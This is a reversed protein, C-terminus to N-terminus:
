AMEVDNCHQMFHHTKNFRTSTLVVSPQIAWSIYVIHTHNQQQYIIHIGYILTILRGINNLTAESTSPCDNDNMSMESTSPTIMNGWTIVTFDTDIIVILDTSLWLLVCCIISLERFTKFIPTENTFMIGQIGPVIHMSQHSWNGYNNTATRNM